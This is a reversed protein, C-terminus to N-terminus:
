EVKKSSICCLFVLLNVAETAQSQLVDTDQSHIVYLIFLLTLGCTHEQEESFAHLRVSHVRHSKKLDLSFFLRRICKKSLVLSFLMESNFFCANFLMTADTTINVEMKLEQNQNECRSKLAQVCMHRCSLM